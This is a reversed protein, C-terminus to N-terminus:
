LLLSIGSADFRYLHMTGGSGLAQTAGFGMTLTVTFGGTTSNQVWKFYASANTAAPFTVTIAATRAGVFQNTSVGIDATALTLTAAAGPISPASFGNVFIPFGITNVIPSRLNLANQDIQMYTTGASQFVIPQGSGVNLVAQGSVAMGMDGGGPTVYLYDGVGPVGGLSARNAADLSLMSVDATNAANRGNVASANPLALNGSLAPTTGLSATGTTVINQAGFNPAIKSGAIAAAAAVDANVLLSAATVLVGAAVKVLGTGTFALAVSSPVDAALELLMPVAAGPPSLPSLRRPTLRRWQGRDYLFPVYIGNTSLVLTAAGDILAGAGAVTIANTGASLGVDDIAFTMGEVPNLPTNVTVAGGATQCAMRAGAVGPTTQGGLANAAPPTIGTVPDVLVATQLAAM